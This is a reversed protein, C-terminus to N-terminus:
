GGLKRVFTSVVDAVNQSERQMLLHPGDVLALSIDPRIRKIEALCSESLLRDHTAQVYMMPVKIRALQGTMDCNLAEHVRSNLVAPSISRLAQRFQQVLEDPADRGVLTQELVWRPARLRFFWPNAVVKAALSWGGIPRHVFGAVMILAALNRPNSAAYEVAIPTSFSEALVVFPEDKPVASHVYPLLDGYSLFKDAPYAVTTGGFTNPLATLFSKFLQGTGDLGPLMVLRKIVIAVGM